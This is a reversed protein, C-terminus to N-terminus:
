SSANAIDSLTAPASRPGRRKWRREAEILDKLFELDRDSAEEDLEIQCLGSDLKRRYMRSTDAGLAQAQAAGPYPTTERRPPKALKEGGGFEELLSSYPIESYRLAHLVFRGARLVTGKTAGHSELLSVFQKPTMREWGINFFEKYTEKLVAKWGAVGDVLLRRLAPTTSGGKGVLGLRRLSQGVQEITAPSLEEPFVSEDIRGPLTGNSLHELASRVAPWSCYPLRVRVSPV